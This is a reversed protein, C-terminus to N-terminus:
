YGDHDGRLVGAILWYCICFAIGVIVGGWFTDRVVEIILPEDM